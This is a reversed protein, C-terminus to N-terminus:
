LACVVCVPASDEEEKEGVTNHVAASNGNHAASHIYSVSSHLVCM